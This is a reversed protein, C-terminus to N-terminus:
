STGGIDRPTGRRRTYYWFVFIQKYFLRKKTYLVPTNDLTQGMKPNSPHIVALGSYLLFFTFLFHSHVKLKKM